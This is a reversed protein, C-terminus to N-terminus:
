LSMIGETNKNNKTSVTVLTPDLDIGENLKKSTNGFIEERAKEQYQPYKALYYFVWLLTNVTTEQGAFYLTFLQDRLEKADM